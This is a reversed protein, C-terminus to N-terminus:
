SILAKAEEESLGLAALKVLASAKLAEKAQEEEKAQEALALAQERATELDAIEEATLEIVTQEGTSCDVEIRTLKDM